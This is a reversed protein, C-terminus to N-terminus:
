KANIYYTHSAFKKGCKKCTWIGKSLRKLAVKGCYPCKQKKRQRGEIETIRGRVSKGYGVRLRGAAKVKRTKTM